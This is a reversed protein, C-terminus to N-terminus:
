MAPDDFLELDRNAPRLTGICPERHRHQIDIAEFLDVVAIPVQDPILDAYHTELDRRTMTPVQLWKSLDVSGDERLLFELRERYYPVNRVAHALVDRVLYAAAFYAIVPLGSAMEPMALFDLWEPGLRALLQTTIAALVSAVAGILVKRTPLKTPQDIKNEM